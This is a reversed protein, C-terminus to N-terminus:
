RNPELNIFQKRIGKSITVSDEGYPNEKSYQNTITQLQRLTKDTEDGGERTNLSDYDFATNPADKTKNVNRLRKKTGKKPNSESVEEYSRGENYNYILNGNKDYHEDRYEIGVKELASQKTDEM